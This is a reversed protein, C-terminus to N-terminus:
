YKNTTGVEKRSTIELIVINRQSKYSKSYFKQNLRNMTKKDHRTIDSPTLYTTVCWTDSKIMSKGKRYAVLIEMYYITKKNM